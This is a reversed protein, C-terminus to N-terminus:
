WPHQCRSSHGGCAHAQRTGEKAGRVRCREVPVRARASRTQTQPPPKHPHTARQTGKASATAPPSNSCVLQAHTGDCVLFHAHLHTLHTSSPRNLLNRTDLYMSFIHRCSHTLLAPPFDLHYYLPPPPPPDSSIQATGLSSLLHYFVPHSVICPNTPGPHPSFFALPSPPSITM